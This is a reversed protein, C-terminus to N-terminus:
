GKSELLDGIHNVDLDVEKENKIKHTDGSTLALHSPLSQRSVGFYSDLYAGRKLLSKLFPQKLAKKAEANELVVLFVKSFRLPSHNRNNKTETDGSGEASPPPPNSSPSSPNSKNCAVLALPLLLALAAMKTNM